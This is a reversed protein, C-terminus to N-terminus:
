QSRRSRRGLLMVFAGGTLLTTPEPVIEFIVGTTGSPGLATSALLYIEGNPGESMGKVFRGLPADNNNTLIFENIAGTALDAYFLRGTPASFTTGFDGFVYKGELWPMRDGRYVFGGVIAIGEDHDYQVIPDVLGPPLGTQDPSVTNAVPDYKFTGEKLNWGYHGGKVVDNVEEINNQGVDAVLLRSGDFSFRYPNRFGIAYIEPVTGGAYPNDAPIGYNGRSTGNVDIRHIKGLPSNIDRANGITPNHGPGVDNGAGGDGDGFYLYGDPGFKLDGADHNFQPHDIRMLVQRSAPDVVNPNTASVRWSSLVNQHDVPGPTTLPYTPNPQTVDSTWTFLRRYGPTGVNNFNPDFELGLLGREDYGPRMPVTTGTTDLFPTGQVIGNQVLKVVGNQEVVFMRTSDGPAHAAVLPATLGTVIPQLTVQGPGHPIKQPIPQALLTSPWWAAAAALLVLTARNRNM